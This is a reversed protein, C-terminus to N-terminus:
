KALKSDILRGKLYDLTNSYNLSMMIDGSATKKIDVGRTMRTARVCFPIRLTMIRVPYVGSYLFQRIHIPLYVANYVSPIKIFNHHIFKLICPRHIPLKHSLPILCLPIISFYLVWNDQLSQFLSWDLM